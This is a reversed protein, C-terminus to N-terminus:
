QLTRAQSALLIGRQRCSGELGVAIIYFFYTHIYKYVYVCMYTYVYTCVYMYESSDCLIPYHPKRYNFFTGGLWRNM